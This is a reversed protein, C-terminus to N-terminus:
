YFEHLEQIPYLQVWLKEEAKKIGSTESIPPLNGNQAAKM